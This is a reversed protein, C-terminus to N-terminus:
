NAKNKVQNLPSNYVDLLEPKYILVYFVYIIKIIIIIIIHILHLLGIIDVSFKIILPFHITIKSVMLILCIAGIVRLVRIFFSNYYNLLKLPLKPFNWAKKLGLCINKINYKM